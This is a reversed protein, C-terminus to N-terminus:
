KSPPSWTIQTRKDRLFGSLAVLGGAIKGPWSLKEGCKFECVVFVSCMFLKDASNSYPLGYKRPDRSIKKTAPTKAAVAPLAIM